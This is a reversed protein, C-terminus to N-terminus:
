ECNITAKSGVEIGALCFQYAPSALDGRVQLEERDAELLRVTAQSTHRGRYQLEVLAVCCVLQLAVDTQDPDGASEGTNALSLSALCNKMELRALLNGADDTFSVSGSRLSGACGPELWDCCLGAGSQRFVTFGRYDTIDTEGAWFTARQLTLSTTRPSTFSQRSGTRYAPVVLLATEEELGAVSEVEPGSLLMRTVNYCVVSTVLVLDPNTDPVQDLRPKGQRGGMGPPPLLPFSVLPPRM